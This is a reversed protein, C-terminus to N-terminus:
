RRPEDDGDDDAFWSRLLQQGSAGPQEADLAEPRSGAPRGEGARVREVLHRVDQTRDITAAEEAAREAELRERRSRFRPMQGFRRRAAPANLGPGDHEDRDARHSSAPPTSSPTSPASPAASADPVASSGAGPALPADPRHPASWRTRARRASPAELGAMWGRPLEGTVMPGAALPGHANSEALELLSAEREVEATDVHRGLPPPAPVQLPPLAPAAPTAPRGGDSGAPGHPGEPAFPAEVGSDVDDAAEDDDAGSRRGRGIRSLMADMADALEPSRLLRLAVLYVALMVSGGIVCGVLAPVIGSVAFGDPRYAGILWMVLAGAIGAIVAAIAFIAYSRAIRGFDLPGIRMRLIVLLIALRLTSMISQLLALGVAIREPPGLTVLAMGFVHLPATALFVWFLTKTDERAFFIRQVLFLGSYSPLGVLFAILIAALALTGEHRAEFVRSFSTSVVALVVASLVVFLGIIRASASFDRVLGADDGESAAESMRTFYATAISVTIISHPLVFLLFANQMAAVSASEGFALNAVITEVIGTAQVILLMGFTWSALQGAKRLGTGRFNFDPRYTLGVRKWFLFLILAQCAVAFTTTGGLMAIMEPTWESLKRDGGPDAGYMGSFVFLMAISILNNLVQAWTFPGFSGRANLVEGLLAYLGYFFIQPLCWYAFGIVLALDDPRLSAGYVRSLIPAALTAVAALAAMLVIGLTVLRNIYRQGGDEDKAARVVQPVLVANLMGGAIVAYIASPLSNANAFADASKSGVVGITQALVIVRVFGLVRSVITGSALLLSAVGVSQRRAGAPAPREPQAPQETPKPAPSPEPTERSTTMRDDTM